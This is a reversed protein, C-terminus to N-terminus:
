GPLHWHHASDIPVGDASCGSVVGSKELRQKHSSHCTDCLSQWNSRRWFLKLDGRHPIIHDVVTALRRLGLRACERCMPEAALHEARAKQWKYGYGRAASSGRDEAM